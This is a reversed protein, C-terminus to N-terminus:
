DHKAGKVYQTPSEGGYADAYEEESLFEDYEQNYLDVDRYGEPKEEYEVNTKIEIKEPLNNRQINGVHAFRKQEQDFLYLGRFTKYRKLEEIIKTRLRQEETFLESDSVGVELQKKIVSYKSFIDKNAKVFYISNRVKDLVNEDTLSKLFDKVLDRYNEVGDLVEVENLCIHGARVHGTVSQIMKSNFIVKYKITTNKYTSEIYFHGKTFNIVEDEHLRYLLNQADFFKSTYADIDKIHVSKKMERKESDYVSIIHESKNNKDVAILSYKGMIDGFNNYCTNLYFFLSKTLLTV